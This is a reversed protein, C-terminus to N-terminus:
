RLGCEKMLYEEYEYPIGIDYNRYYHAFDMPFTFPGDDYKGAQLEEGTFMDATPVSTLWDELSEIHRLVVEKSLKNHYNRYEDFSEDCNGYPLGAFCGFLFRGNVKKM